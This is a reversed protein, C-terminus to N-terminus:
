RLLWLHIQCIARGRSRFLHAIQNSRREPEAYSLQECSGAMIGAPKDGFERALDTLNV